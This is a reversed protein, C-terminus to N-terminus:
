AEPAVDPGAARLEADLLSRLELQLKPPPRPIFPPGTAEDGFKMKALSDAAAQSRIPAVWNQSFLRRAPTAKPTHARPEEGTLGRATM